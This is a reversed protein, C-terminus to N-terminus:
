VATPFVARRNTPRGHCGNYCGYIRALREGGAIAISDTPVAVPTGEVDHTRLNVPRATCKEVM